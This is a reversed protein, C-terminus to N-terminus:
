EQVNLAALWDLRNLARQVPLHALLTFGLALMWAWIFTSPAIVKPFQWTDFEFSDAYAMSLAYGLGLGVLVGLLNVILSERLFIRGVEVPTYGLVRYTAIERRRENLAILSSNLISGLYILGAFVTIIGLMFWMSGLMLDELVQRNERTSRVTQVAPMRKVARNLALKQELGSATKLHIASVAEAEGVLRNLWDYDAYVMLGLYSDVIGAVAVRRPEKAGKVPTLQLFDGAGVDLVRALRPTLLLGRPPVPMRRGEKDCPVTLVAGPKIGEIATKRHHSGNRLTCALNFTSEAYDVGPLRQAELLAGADCDDKLVLTHDSLLVRDFQFEVLFTAAGAQYFAIVMLSAGLASAFLSTLSRGRDRLLNRIVTQWVFGLRSWLATLRELVVRHGARPAAPRMAEAPSLKVLRRAGRWAGSGAFLLSILVALLMVDPYFRNVLDPFKFFQARYLDTSLGATWYGFGCGLLCAVVAIIAAFKLYYTFITGSGYGLAKLTGM